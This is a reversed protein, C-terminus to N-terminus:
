KEGPKGRGEVNKLETGVLEGLVSPDRSAIAWQTVLAAIFRQVSDMPMYALAQAAQEWDRFSAYLDQGTEPYQQHTQEDMQVSGWEARM